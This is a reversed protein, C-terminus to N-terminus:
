DDTRKEYDGRELVAELAEQETMQAIDSGTMQDLTLTLVLGDRDLLDILRQRLYKVAARDRDQRQEAQQRQEVQEPAEWGDRLKAELTALFYPVKRQPAQSETITRCEEVLAPHFGTECDFALKMGHWRQLERPTM